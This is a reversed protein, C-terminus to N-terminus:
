TRAVLPRAEGVLYHSGSVCILESEGAQYLAGTVATAVDEIVDCDIGIKTAHDQLAKPDVSRVTKPRTAIIRCPLRSLESLMGEHDKDALIALVVISSEFAFAEILSNVLASMGDPNHAVDLVVTPGEEGEPRLTELRGPVSVTALGQSVVEESLPQAPLFRAVAEMAVAANTGQHSGHLPLFLGEYESLSTRASLYRGGV